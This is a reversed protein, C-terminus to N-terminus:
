HITFVSCRVTCTVESRLNFHQGGTQLLHLHTLSGIASTLPNVDRVLRMEMPLVALTNLRNQTM